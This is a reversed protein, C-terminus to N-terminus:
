LELRAQKEKPESLDEIEGEVDEKEKLKGIEELVAPIKTFDQILPDRFSPRHLAAAPHFSPYFILKGLNKIERRKPQGHVQSIKMGPLFREMSHRGLTVILKPNIIKIQGELYPWCTEIEEPFPDRNGPPRCKVLNAIFVDERKLNISALLEELFKGAAGVFPRGLEDERQGPGEGIFMLEARPNGEGPVANTRSESLPCKTCVKVQETIEELTPM